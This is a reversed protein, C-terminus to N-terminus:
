PHRYTVIAAGHDALRVFPEFEGSAVIRWGTGDRRATLTVGAISAHAGEALALVTESAQDYAGPPAAGEIASQEIAARATKMSFIGDEMVVHAGAADVSDIRLRRIAVQTTALLEASPAVAELRIPLTFIRPEWGSQYPVFRAQGYSGGAVPAQLCIDPYFHGQGDLYPSYSAGDARWLCPEIAGGAGLRAAFLTGAPITAGIPAPVRVPAVTRWRQEDARMAGRAVIEGPTAAAPALPPLPMAVPDGSVMDGGRLPPGLPSIAQQAQAAPALAFLALAVAAGLARGSGSAM